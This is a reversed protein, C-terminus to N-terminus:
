VYAVKEDIPTEVDGVFGSSETRGLSRLREQEEEITKPPYVAEASLSSVPPSIYTCIIYYVFAASSSPLNSSFRMLIHLIFVYVLIGFLWSFALRAFNFVLLHRRPDLDSKCYLHLIGM